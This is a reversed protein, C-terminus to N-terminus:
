INAIYSMIIMIIYILRGLFIMIVYIHIHIHIHAHRERRTEYKNLQQNAETYGLTVHSNTMM